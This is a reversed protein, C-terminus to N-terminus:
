LLLLSVQLFLFYYIFISMVFGPTAICSRPSTKLISFAYNNPVSPTDAMEPVWRTPPTPVMESRLVIM